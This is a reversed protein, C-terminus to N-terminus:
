KALHLNLEPPFKLVHDGSPNVQDYCWLMGERFGDMSIYSSEYRKEYDGHKIEFEGSIGLTIGEVEFFQPILFEVPLWPYEENPRFMDRGLGYALIIEDANGPKRGFAPLMRSQISRRHYPRGGVTITEVQRNILDTEPLPFGFRFDYRASEVPHTISVEM